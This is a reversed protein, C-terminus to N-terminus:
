LRYRKSILSSYKMSHTTLDYEFPKNGYNINVPHGSDVGVVPYLPNEALFDVNLEKWAYGLFSGNCTFFIGQTAYDVGCGVADGPGFPRFRKRLRGSGHYLGGNDSHYGFSHHNWGPLMAKGDFLKTALGIAICDETKPGLTDVTSSPRLEEKIPAPLISIEFYSVLRPMAQISCDKELYPAAFPNWEANKTSDRIRFNIIKNRRSANNKLLTPQPMPHDSRVSYLDESGVQGKYCVRILDETTEDKKIEIIESHGSWEMLRQEDVKSPLAKPALSLLLPLNTKHEAFSGSVTPLCLSDRILSRRDIIDGWRPRCHELWIWHADSSFLLDRIQHSTGMFQCISPLDLFSAVFLKLDRSLGDFCLESMPLANDNAESCNMPFTNPQSERSDNTSVNKNSGNFCDRIKNKKSRQGLKSSKHLHVIKLRKEM